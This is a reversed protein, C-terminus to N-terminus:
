AAGQAEDIADFVKSLEHLQKHRRKWESAERLARSLILARISPVTLAEKTSHYDMTEGRDTKVNLFARVPGTSEAEEYVVEVCGILARAQWKRFADAAKNNNWEFCGHLPSSRKRADIVIDDPTVVGGNRRRIMDIREGAIQAKVKFRSGDRWKYKM